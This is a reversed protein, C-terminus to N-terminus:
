KKNNSQIYVDVYMFYYLSSMYGLRLLWWGTALEKKGMSGGVEEGEMNNQFLDWTDDNWGNM